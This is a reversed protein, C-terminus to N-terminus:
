RTAPELGAAGALSILSKAPLYIQAIIEMPLAIRLVGIISGSALQNLASFSGGGPHLRQSLPPPAM